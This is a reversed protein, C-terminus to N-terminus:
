YVPSPSFNHLSQREGLLFPRNSKFACHKESYCTGGAGHLFFLTRLTLMVSKMLQFYFFGEVRRLCIPQQLFHKKDRLQGM